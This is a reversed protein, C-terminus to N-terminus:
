YKLDVIDRPILFGFSLSLRPRNENIVDTWHMDLGSKCMTYHGEKADVVKGSYYTNLDNTPLMIFVNFRTHILGDVNDDTHKHIRGGPMIAGFFDKYKPEQTYDELKEKEVIRKKINWISLPVSEDTEKLTYDIRGFQIRNMRYHNDCFWNIIELREEENMIIGRDRM